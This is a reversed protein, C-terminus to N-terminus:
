KNTAQRSKLYERQKGQFKNPLLETSQHRMLHVQTAQPESAVQNIYKATAKLSKMKKVLQRVENVPFKNLDINSDNITKSM